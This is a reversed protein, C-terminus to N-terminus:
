ARIGVAAISFSDTAWHHLSTLIPIAAADVITVGAAANEVLTQCLTVKTPVKYNRRRCWDETADQRNRSALDSSAIQESTHQWRNLEANIAACYAEITVLDELRCDARGFDAYSKIKTPAIGADILKRRISEGGGDGDVIFLARGCESILEGLQNPDVNSAGPAIQYDLHKITAAQRILTPLLICECPGEGILENRAATFALPAFGMALYVPSLGIGTKWFGNHITSREGHLEQVARIGTGLDSPLCGASHTTYIVKEAVRQHELVDMLSAQADYSLHTEAEDVLLIPLQRDQHQYTLFAVLAVFWRLGDSREEIRCLGRDLTRVFLHLSGGEVHFQPVVDSQVWSQSYLDSLQQNARELLETRLPIDGTEGAKKLQQLDLGAIHALNRLGLPTTEAVKAIEYNPKLERSQEDFFIAKPKRQAITPLAKNPHWQHEMKILVDIAKAFEMGDSKHNAPANPQSVISSIESSIQGIRQIHAEALVEHESHLAAIAATFRAKRDKREEPNQGFNAITPWDVIAALRDALESRPVLDRSRGPLELSFKGDPQKIVRCKKVRDAQPVDANALADRDEQSLEYTAIIKPEVAIRRTKDRAEFAGEANLSAIARLLSTKGAENPGVIAIVSETLRVTVSEAFRRFGTIEIAVLKM